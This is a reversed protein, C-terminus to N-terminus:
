AKTAAYIAYLPHSPVVVSAGSGINVIAGKRRVLMGKLVVRTVYSTGEVNVKVLKMWVSEDVEHFYMARPYTVGVNNILVGIDLGEIVKEMERVGRVVDKSFDLEFVKINLSPHKALIESSVQELKTLNRSVLVLNLGKEALKFAFGRGIGDTSGTVLAWSGYTRLDKPSRLFTNFIWKLFLISNKFLLLLGISSLLTIWSPQTKLHDFYTLVMIKLM